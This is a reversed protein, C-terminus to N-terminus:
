RANEKQLLMVTSAKVEIMETGCMLVCADPLGLKYSIKYLVGSIEKPPDNSYPKKEYSVVLDGIEPVSVKSAKLLSPELSLKQCLEKPVIHVMSTTVGAVEVLVDNLGNILVFGIVASGAKKRSKEITGGLVAILDGKKFNTKKM